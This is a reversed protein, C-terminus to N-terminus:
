RAPPPGIFRITAAGAIVLVGASVLLAARMGALFHGDDAILAGFLAVGTAAGVQRATNLVGSAIGSHAQDAAGMLAATAAPTVMGGAIGIALMPFAIAVYSTNPGILAMGLFGAVGFLLGMLIPLRAGHRAAVRGSVMNTVAVVATMPLFALGTTLPSDHRIRQFYLSLVFLLGFFALTTALAVFGAASFTRDRFISLPLMPQARRAEIALFCVTAIIFVAGLGLIVPATWGLAPGEILAAALSGLALFGTIQGALDLGRGGTRPHGDPILMTLWLGLLGIPVNVLFISRWGFLSILVGGALPGAALAAGGCGAWLGVVRAREGPDQYAHNLLALSCPVLLAAGLGQVARAVVLFIVSPAAGCLASALTFLALGAGYVRTAGLRDGLTGGTLLLSAFVLTYANVVWEIGSLGTGLGSGIREIAVNVISTDLIVIVYSISTAALTLRQSRSRVM